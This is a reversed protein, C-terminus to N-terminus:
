NVSLFFRSRGPLSRNLIVETVRYHLRDTVLENYAHRIILTEKALLCIKINKEEFKFASTVNKLM